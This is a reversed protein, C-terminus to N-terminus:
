LEGRLFGVSVAGLMLLGLMQFAIFGTSSEQGTQQGATGSVLSVEFEPFQWLFSHCLESDSLKELVGRVRQLFVSPGGAICM